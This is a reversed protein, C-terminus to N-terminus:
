AYRTTPKLGEGQYKISHATGASVKKSDWVTRQKEDKVIIQYASQSLGRPNQPDLM